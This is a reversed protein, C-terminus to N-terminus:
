SCNKLWIISCWKVGTAIEDTYLWGTLTLEDLGAITQKRFIPDTKDIILQTTAETQYPIQMDILRMFQNCSSASPGYCSMRCVDHCAAGGFISSIDSISLITKTLQFGHLEGTISGKGGVALPTYPHMTVPTNSISSAYVAGGWDYTHMQVSNQMSIFALFKWSFLGSKLQLNLTGKPMSVKFDTSLYFITGQTSTPGSMTLLKSANPTVDVRIWFTLTFIATASTLEPCLDKAHISYYTSSDKVWYNTTAQVLSILLLSIM